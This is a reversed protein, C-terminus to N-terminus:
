AVNGKPKVTGVRGKLKECLEGACNQYRKEDGGYPDSIGEPSVLEVNAGPSLEKVANFHAKTMVLVLDAWDVLEKTVKKSKHQRLDLGRVEMAKVANASAPDGAHPSVGASDVEYKNKSLDRLLTMAMPSRCTNGTCVFLVKPKPGFLKSKIRSFWGM